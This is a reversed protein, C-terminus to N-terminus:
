TRITVHKIEEQIKDACIQSDSKYFYFTGRNKYSAAALIPVSVPFTITIAMIKAFELFGYKEEIASKRFTSLTLDNNKIIQAVEKITTAHFMQCFASEKFWLGGTYSNKIKEKIDNMRKESCDNIIYKADLGKLEESLHRRRMIFFNDQPKERLFDTCEDIKRQLELKEKDLEQNYKRINEDIIEYVHMLYNVCLVKIKYLAQEEELDLKPLCHEPIILTHKKTSQNLEAQINYDSSDVSNKLTNTIYWIKQYEITAEQSPNNFVKGSVEFNDARKTILLLRLDNIKFFDQMM